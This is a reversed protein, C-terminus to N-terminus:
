WFLLLARDLTVPRQLPPSVKERFLIYSFASKQEVCVLVEDLQAGAVKGVSNM